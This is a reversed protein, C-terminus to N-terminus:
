PSLPPVHTCETRKFRKELHDTKVNPKPEPKAVLKQHIKDYVIPSQMKHAVVQSTKIGRLSGVAVDSRLFEDNVEELGENDVGGFFNNIEIKLREAHSM